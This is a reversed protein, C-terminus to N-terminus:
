NVLREDVIEGTVEDDMLAIGSVDMMAVVFRAKPSRGLTNPSALIVVAKSSRRV